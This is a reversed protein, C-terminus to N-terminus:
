CSNMSRGSGSSLCAFSLCCSSLCRCSRGAAQCSSSHTLSWEHSMLELAHSSPTRAAQSMLWAPLQPLAAPLTWRCGCMTTSRRRSHQVAASHACCLSRCVTLLRADNRAVGAYTAVAQNLVGVSTNSPQLSLTSFNHCYRAHAPQSSSSHQRHMCCPNSCFYAPCCCVQQWSSLMTQVGALFRKDNKTLDTQLFDQQGSLYPGLQGPLLM